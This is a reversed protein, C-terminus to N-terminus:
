NIKDVVRKIIKTHNPSSGCCSGVVFPGENLYKVISEEFMKDSNMRDIKGDIEPDSEGLNPYIGWKLESLNKFNYFCESSRSLTNCNLMICDLTYNTFQFVDKVSHGSLLYDSSELILSLWVKNFDKSISLAIEIEDIHSMTEFLILDIGSEEFWLLMEGFTDEAVAKGPFLDPKYCDEVSTISGAIIQAKSKQASEVARMLSERARHSATQQSFGAKRYSWTTTRFTNTTIVDAGAAVYSSHVDAVDDPHTINLDASWLPLPLKLGREMLQTGMAGDLILPRSVAPM